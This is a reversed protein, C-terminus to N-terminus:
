EKMEKLLREMKEDIDPPGPAVLQIYRSALQQLDELEKQEEPTLYENRVDRRILHFRRKNLIPWQQKLEDDTM